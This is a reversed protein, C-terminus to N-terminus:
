SAWMFVRDGPQLTTPKKTWWSSPVGRRMLSLDNTRPNAKVVWYRREM